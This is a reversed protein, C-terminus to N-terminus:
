GVAYSQWAVAQPGPFGKDESCGSFWLGPLQLGGTRVPRSAQLGLDALWHQQM